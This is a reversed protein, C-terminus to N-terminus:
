CPQLATSAQVISAEAVRVLGKRGRAVHVLMTAAIFPLSALAAFPSCSAVSVLYLWILRDYRDDAALRKLENPVRPEAGLAVTAFTFLAAVPLMLGVVSSASSSAIWNLEDREADSRGPEDAMDDALIALQRRTPQTLLVASLLVAFYVVMALLTMMFASM